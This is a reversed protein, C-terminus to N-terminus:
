YILHCIVDSTNVRFSYFDDQVFHLIEYRFSFALNKASSLIVNNLHKSAPRITHFSMAFNLVLSPM